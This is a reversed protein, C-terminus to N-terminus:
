AEIKVIEIRTYKQRHGITRHYGKRRTKKFSLLKTGKEQAKITGVVLGKGTLGLKVSEGDSVMLVDKMRVESGVPGEVKEVTISKGPTVLYQHSGIRVVAYM